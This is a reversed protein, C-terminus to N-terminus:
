EFDEKFNEMVQACDAIYSRDGDLELVRDQAEVNSTPSRSAVARSGCLAVGEHSYFERVWSEDVLYKRKSCMMLSTYQMATPAHASFPHLIVSGLGWNGDPFLPTRRELVNERCCTLSFQLLMLLVRECVSSNLGISILM